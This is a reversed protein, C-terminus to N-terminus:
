VRPLDPTCSVRSKAPTAIFLNGVTDVAVGSFDLNVSVAPLGDPGGGAVTTIIAQAQIHGSLLLLITLLIISLPYM